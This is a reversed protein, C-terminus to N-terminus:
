RIGLRAQVLSRLLHPVCHLNVQRRQACCDRLPKSREIRAAIACPSAASSVRLPPNLLARVANPRKLSCIAALQRRRWRAAATPLNCGAHCRLGKILARMRAIRADCVRWRHNERM